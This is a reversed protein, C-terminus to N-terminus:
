PRDASVIVVGYRVYAAVFAESLWMFGGHSWKPGRSDKCEFYPVGTQSLGYGTMLMAHSPRNGPAPYYIEGSPRRVVDFIDEALRTSFLPHLSITIDKGAALWRKLADTFSLATTGYTSPTLTQSERLRYGAKAIAAPTPDAKCRSRIDRELEYPCLQATCVGEAKLYEVADILRLGDACWDRPPTGRRMLVWNIYQTSLEVHVGARAYLGEMASALAFCVCTGRGDQDGAPRQFRANSHSQPLPDPAELDKWTLEMMALASAREETSLEDELSPGLLIERDNVIDYWRGNRQELM